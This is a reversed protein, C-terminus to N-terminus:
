QNATTNKSLCWAPIECITMDEKYIERKILTFHDKLRMQNQTTTIKDSTLIIVSAQKKTPTQEVSQNEYKSKRETETDKDILCSEQLCCFTTKVKRIQYNLGSVDLIISVLKNGRPSNNTEGWGAGLSAKFKNHLQPYDQVVSQRSCLCCIPVVM